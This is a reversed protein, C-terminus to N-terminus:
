DNNTVKKLENIYNLVDKIGIVESDMHYKGRGCYRDELDKELENIINNLRKNEKNLREIIPKQRIYEQMVIDVLYQEYHYNDNEACEQLYEKIVELDIDKGWDNM